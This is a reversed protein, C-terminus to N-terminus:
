WVGAPLEDCVLEAVANISIHVCLPCAITQVPIRSEVDVEANKRTVVGYVVGPQGVQVYRYITLDMGVSVSTM